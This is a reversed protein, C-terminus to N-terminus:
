NDDRKNYVDKWEEAYYEEEDLGCDDCVNHDAAVHGGCYPCKRCLPLGMKSFEPDRCIYCDHRFVVPTSTFDDHLLCRAPDDPPLPKSM